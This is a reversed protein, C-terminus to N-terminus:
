PIVIHPRTEVDKLALPIPHQTGLCPETELYRKRNYVDLALLATPNNYSQANRVWVQKAVAVPLKEEETHETGRLTQENWIGLAIFTVVVAVIASRPIRRTGKITM